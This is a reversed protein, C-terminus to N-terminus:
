QRVWEDPLLDKKRRNCPACATKLNDLDNTGGRMLPMVHDCHLPTENSGCYQCVHGDREFVAARIGNWEAASLGLRARWRDTRDAAATSPPPYMMPELETVADIVMQDSAGAKYLWKVVTSMMGM